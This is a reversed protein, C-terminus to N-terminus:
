IAATSAPPWAPWCRPRRVASLAAFGHGNSCGRLFGVDTGARRRRLHRLRTIARRPRRGSKRRAAANGCVAQRSRLQRTGQGLQERTEDNEGLSSRRRAVMEQGNEFDGTEAYAAALTSLIHPVNYSSLEAAKTALEIARKGDRVKDDPSTALVWAFNNLLGDDEDNLKLAADFDAVAEAHKGINLYADGRFRLARYNEPELELM